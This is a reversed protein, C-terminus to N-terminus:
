LEEVYKINNNEVYKDALLRLTANDENDTHSSSIRQYGSLSYRVGPCVWSLPKFDEHRSIFFGLWHDPCHNKFSPHFIHGDLYKAITELEIFPLPIVPYPGYEAPIPTSRIDHAWLKGNASEDLHHQIICGPGGDWMLNVLKFKKNRGEGNELYEVVDLVNDPYVIDNLLYSIYKGRAHKAALNFANPSGQMTDCILRAKTQLLIQEDERSYISSEPCVIVLEFEHKPLRYIADICTKSYSLSDKTVLAYSIM